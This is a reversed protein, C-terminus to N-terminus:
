PTPADAALLGAAKLAPWLEAPVSTALSALCQDIEDISALGVVLRTVGPHALPFQLAAAALAVGYSACISALRDRRVIVDPPAASYDFTAGGALLGSNFVGAAHVAVGAARAGDLFTLGGQELLTYRGALLVIDIQARTIVADAVGWENVGLGIAGVLGASKLDAMVPLAEDLAQRLVSAHADGHTRQGIDHLLLTDVREVRLRSLSEDFSRQIGDASYDFVPEYPLPDVFDSPSLDTGGRAILRRGVKTSIAFMQNPFAARHQALRIEGRGYGYLPAVDVSRIGLTWAHHLIAVATADDVARYLGALPAAGVTLSSHDIL